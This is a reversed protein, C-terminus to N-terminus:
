SWESPLIASPCYGRLWERGTSSLGPNFHSSIRGHTRGAGPVVRGTEPNATPSYVIASVKSAKGLSPTSPWNRAM